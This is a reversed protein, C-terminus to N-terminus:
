VRFNKVCSSHTLVCSKIVPHPISTYVQQEGSIQPGLKQIVSLQTTVLWHLVNAYFKLIEPDGRFFRTLNRHQVCYSQTKKGSGAQVARTCSRFIIEEDGVKTQLFHEGGNRKAPKVAGWAGSGADVGGFIGQQIGGDAPLDPHQWPNYGFRSRPNGRIEDLRHQRAAAQASSLAQLIFCRRPPLGDYTINHQSLKHM